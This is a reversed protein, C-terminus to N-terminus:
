RFAGVAVAFISPLRGKDERVEGCDGTCRLIKEFDPDDGEVTVRFLDACLAECSLTAIGAIAFRHVSDHRNNRDAHRGQSRITLEM